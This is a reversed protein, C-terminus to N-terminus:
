REEHGQRAAQCDRRKIREILIAREFEAFVGPM